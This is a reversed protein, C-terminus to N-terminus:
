YGCAALLEAGRGVLDRYRLPKQWHDMHQYFPSDPLHIEAGALGSYTVIKPKDAGSRDSPKSFRQLLNVAQGVVEDASTTQNLLWDLIIIDAKGSSIKRRAENPDRAFSVEAGLERFIKELALACDVDDDVILVHPVRRPYKDVRTQHHDVRQGLSNYTM